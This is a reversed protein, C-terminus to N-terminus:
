PKEGGTVPAIVPKGERDLLPALGGAYGNQHFLYEVGTATDRLIETAGGMGSQKYVRVFRKETQVKAM